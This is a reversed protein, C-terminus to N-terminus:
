IKEFKYKFIDIDDKHMSEVIQILDDNYYSSYHNHKSKREHGSLTIDLGIKKLINPEEKISEMKIIHEVTNGKSDTIWDIMQQYKPTNKGGNTFVLESRKEFISKIFKDFSKNVLTREEIFDSDVFAHKKLFHYWSVYWSWPNRITVFKILNDYDDGEAESISEIDKLSFHGMYPGGRWGGINGYLNSSSLNQGITTGGTKPIHVFLYNKENSSFKYAM